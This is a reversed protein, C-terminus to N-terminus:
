GVTPSCSAAGVSWSTTGMGTESPAELFAVARGEARSAAAVAAEAAM